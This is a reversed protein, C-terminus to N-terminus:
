IMAGLLTTNVRTPIALPQPPAAAPQAGLSKVPKLARIEPVPRYNPNEGYRLYDWGIRELNSATPKYDPDKRWYRVLADNLINTLQQGGRVHGSLGLHLTAEYFYAKAVTAHYEIKIDDSFLSVYTPARPSDPYIYRHPFVKEDVDKDLIIYIADDSSHSRVDIATPNGEEDLMTVRPLNEDKNRYIYIVPKDLIKRLGEIAAEEVGLIRFWGLTNKRLNEGSLDDFVYHANRYKAEKEYYGEGVAYEGKEMKQRICEAISSEGAQGDPGTAQLAALEKNFMTLKDSSGSLANRVAKIIDGPNQLDPKIIAQAAAQPNEKALEILQGIEEGGGEPTPPRGIVRVLRQATALAQEGSVVRLQRFRAALAAILSFDDTEEELANALITVLVPDPPINVAEGPRSNFVEIYRLIADRPNSVAPQGAAQPAVVTPAGTMRTELAVLMEDAERLARGEKISPILDILHWAIALLAAERTVVEEPIIKLRSLSYGILINRIRPKNLSVDPLHGEIAATFKSDFGLRFDRENYLNAVQQGAIFIIKTAGWTMYGVVKVMLKYYMAIEKVDIDGIFPRDIVVNLYNNQLPDLKVMNELVPIIAKDGLYGAAEELQAFWERYNAKVTPMYGRQRQDKPLGEWGSHWLIELGILIERARLIPEVQKILRRAERALIEDSSIRDGVAVPRLAFSADTFLFIWLMSLAISKKFISSKSKATM